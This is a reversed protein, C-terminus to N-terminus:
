LAFLSQTIGPLQPSVVDLRDDHVIGWRGPRSGGGFQGLLTAVLLACRRSHAVRWRQVLTIDFIEAFASRTLLNTTAILLDRWHLAENEIPM